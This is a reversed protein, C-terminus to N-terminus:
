TCLAFLLYDMALLALKLDAASTDQTGARTMLVAAPIVNCQGPQVLLRYSLSCGRRGNRGNRGEEKGHALWM